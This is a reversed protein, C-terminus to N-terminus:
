AYTFWLQAGTIIAFTLGGMFLVSQDLHRAGVWRMVAIVKNSKM